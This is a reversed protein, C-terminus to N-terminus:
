EALSYSLSYIRSRVDPQSVLDTEGGVIQALREVTDTNPMSAELFEAKWESRTITPWVADPLPM